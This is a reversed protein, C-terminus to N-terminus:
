PASPKRISAQCRRARSSSGSARPSSTSSEARGPARPRCPVDDGALNRPRRTTSTPRLPLRAESREISNEAGEIAAAKYGASRPASSIWSPAFAPRNGCTRIPSCGCARPSIQISTRCVCRPGAEPRRHLLAPPRDGHGGRGGRGPGARHEGQLRHEGAGGQRARLAGGQPGRSQRWARGLAPRLAATLDLDGPQPFDVARGYIAWGITAVRRGVLTEPPNDTARIAVDADRKSLNLAQNGAGCRTASRSQRRYLARLDADPPAGSAHRQHHDPTRRGARRVQGALKRTFTAVKEEM